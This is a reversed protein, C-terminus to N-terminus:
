RVSAKFSVSGTEGPAIASVTWRVHTVDASTAARQKGDADAVTLAALRGWAKGGNVSVQLVAADADSLRVADPLPNTVVFNNVAAAGGNHYKTTFLLGDGPVVVKPAVLRVTDKGEEVVRQELMVSGELTVPQEAAIAPAASALMAVAGFISLFTAKM